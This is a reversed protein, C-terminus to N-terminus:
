LFSIVIIIITRTVHPPRRRGDDMEGAASESTFSRHGNKGNASLRAGGDFQDIRVKRVYLVLWESITSM